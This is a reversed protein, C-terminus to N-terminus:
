PQKWPESGNRGQEVIAEFEDYNQAKQGPFRLNTSVNGTKKGIQTRSWRDWGLYIENQRMLM